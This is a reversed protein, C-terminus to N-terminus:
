SFTEVPRGADFWSKIAGSQGRFLGDDSAIVSFM